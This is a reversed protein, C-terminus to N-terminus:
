KDMTYTYTEIWVGVEKPVDVSASRGDSVVCPNSYDCDFDHSDTGADGVLRKVSVDENLFYSLNELVMTPALTNENTV